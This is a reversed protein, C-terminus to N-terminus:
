LRSRPVVTASPTASPTTVTTTTDSSDKAILAVGESICRVGTNAAFSKFAILTTNPENGEGLEWINVNLSDGPILLGSVHAFISKLASPNNNCMKALIARASMSYTALGHSVVGPFGFQKGVSPHIHLPNYDGNLRYLAHQMRWGEAKAVCTPEGLSEIPKNSPIEVRAYTVKDFPVGNAVSGIRLAQLIMRAYVTGDPSLINMENDLTLGKESEHIGVIKTTLTWGEGSVKPLPKLVEIYQSAHVLKGVKFKPLGPPQRGGGFHRAFDIVDTKAGKFPLVTPFTPFAQFKESKEWILDYDDERAGISIAYLILDRQNWSIPQVPYEFGLCQTLEYIYIRAIHTSRVLHDLTRIV